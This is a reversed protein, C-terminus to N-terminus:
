FGKAFVELQHRVAEARQGDHLRHDWVERSIPTWPNNYASGWGTLDAFYKLFDVNTWSISSNHISATGHNLTWTFVQFPLDKLAFLFQDMNWKPMDYHNPRSKVHGSRVLLYVVTHQIAEQLSIEYNPRLTKSTYADNSLGLLAYITDRPDKAKSKGFKQLLMSLDQSEPGSSWWSRKSGPMIELRSHVNENCSIHLLIPMVVFTHSSINNRGCTITASKALAAEQIVWIRSFWERGLLDRIGERINHSCPDRNYLWGLLRWQQKWVTAARTSEIYFKCTSQVTLMRQELLRMWYFLADIEM